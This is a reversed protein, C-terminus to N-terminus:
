PHIQVKLAKAGKVTEFAEEAQQLRFVHTLLPTVDVAGTALMEVANPFTFRDIFSGKVELESKVLRETDIELTAGHPPIGFVVVRGGRRVSDIATRSAAPVAAADIAVDVGRGGTLSRLEQQWSDASPDLVTSVGLRRAMSVRHENVEFGVVRAAGTRELVRAFLIGIPGLGVVAVTEGPSVGARRVGNLVCALPEAFAAKEFSLSAPLRHVTRADLICYEAMGGNKNMGSTSMSTCLNEQSNRCYFCEGCTLNPDVAVRDGVGVNSVDRGVAVVEGAFEHGLIVPPNTGEYEGRLMKIDTGCIGCARVRVLVETRARIEPEETQMVTLVDRSRYFAGLM